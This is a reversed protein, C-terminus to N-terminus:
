ELLTTGNTRVNRDKVEVIGVSEYAVTVAGHGLAKRSDIRHPAYAVVSDNGYHLHFEDGDYRRSWPFPSLLGLGRLVRARRGSVILAVRGPPLYVVLESVYLAIVVAALELFEYAIM